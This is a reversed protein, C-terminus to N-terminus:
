FACVLMKFYPIPLEGRWEQYYNIFAANRLNNGFVYINIMEDISLLFHTIFALRRNATETFDHIIKQPIKTRRAPYKLLIGHKATM